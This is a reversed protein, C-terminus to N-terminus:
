IDVYLTEEVFAWTAAPNLEALWARVTQGILQRFVWILQNFSDLRTHQQKTLVFAAAVHAKTSSNSM